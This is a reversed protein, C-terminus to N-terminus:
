TLPAACSCRTQRKRWATLGAIGLAGLVLTSPEPTSHTQESGINAAGLLHVNSAFPHPGTVTIAANLNGVIPFGFMTNPMKYGNLNVTYKDGDAFTFSQIANPGFVNKVWSGNTSISGSLMGTFHFVHSLGSRVDKLRLSLSYTKDSFVDPHAPTATTIIWLGTVPTRVTSGSPALYSANHLNTFDIVSSDGVIKFLSGPTWDAQWSIEARAHSATLFILSCLIIPLPRKM